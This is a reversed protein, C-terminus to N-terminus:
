VCSCRCNSGSSTVFISRASISFFPSGCPPCRAAGSLWTKRVYIWRAPPSSGRVPSRSAHNGGFPAHREFFSASPESRTTAANSAPVARGRRGRLWPTSSSSSAFVFRIVGAVGPFHDVQLQLRALERGAVHRYVFPRVRQFGMGTENSSFRARM